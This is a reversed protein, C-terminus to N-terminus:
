GSDNCYEPDSLQSSRVASASMHMRFLVSRSKEVPVPYTLQYIDASYELPYGPPLLHVTGEHPDPRISADAESLTLHYQLLSYYSSTLAQSQM